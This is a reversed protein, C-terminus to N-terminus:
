KDSLNLSNDAFSTQNWFLSFHNGPRGKLFLRNYNQGPNKSRRRIARQEKFRMGTSASYWTISKRCNWQSLPLIEKVHRSCCATKQWDTANVNHNQQRYSLDVIINTSINLSIKQLATLRGRRWINLTSPPLIIFSTMICVACSTLQSFFARFLHKQFQLM